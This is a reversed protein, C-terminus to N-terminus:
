EKSSLEIRFVPLFRGPVSGSEREGILKGGSIRYFNEVNPDGHIILTKGGLKQVAYKAHNMLTRGIGSGIYEPEVFMAHLEYEFGKLHM